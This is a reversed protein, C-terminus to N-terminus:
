YWGVVCEVTNYKVYYIDYCIETCAALTSATHGKNVQNGYLKCVCICYSSAYYGGRLNVLEKNKMVENLNISPKEPKIM